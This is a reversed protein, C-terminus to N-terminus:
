AEGGSAGAAVPASAPAAPAARREFGALHAFGALDCPLVVTIRTGRGLESDVLIRGYHGSIVREAIALGIGSGSAKTTFGPAFVRGLEARPIGPGTDAIEIEIVPTAGAAVQRACIDVRGAREQAAEAANSLINLLAERLLVRDGRLDPLVGSAALEIPVASQAAIAEVVESLLASTSVVEIVPGDTRMSRLYAAWEDYLATVERELDALRQALEGEALKRASRARAGLIGLLNKVRHGRTYMGALLDDRAVEAAAAMLRASVPGAAGAGPAGAELLRAVQAGIVPGYGSMELARVATRWALGHVADVRLAAELEALATDSDGRALALLALRNAAGAHGPKLAAGRRYLAEAREVTGPDGEYAAALLFCARALDLDRASTAPAAGLEDVLAELDAIAEARAAQDQSRRRLRREILRLRPARARPEHAIAARLAHEIERDGVGDGHAQRAALLTARLFGVPAAPCRAGLDDIAAAADASRGAAVAAALLDDLLGLDPRNSGAGSSDTPGADTESADAREPGADARAQAEVVQFLEALGAMAHAGAGAQDDVRRSVVAMGLHAAARVAPRPETELAGAFSFRAADTEGAAIQARGLLVRASGGSARTVVERAYRIAERGDGAALALEALRRPPAPDEPDLSLARALAGRAAAPLGLAVYREGLEVLASASPM